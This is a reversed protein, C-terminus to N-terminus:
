KINGNWHPYNDDYFNERKVVWLHPLTKNKKCMNIVGGTQYIDCSSKSEKNEYKEQLNTFLEEFDLGKDRRIVSTLEYFVNPLNYSDRIYCDWDLGKTYYRGEVTYEIKM